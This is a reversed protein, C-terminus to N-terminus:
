DRENLQMMNRALKWFHPRWSALQEELAEREVAAAELVDRAEM